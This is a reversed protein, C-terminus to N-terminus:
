RKPAIIFISPRALVLAASLAGLACVFFLDSLFLGWNLVFKVNLLLYSIGRGTYYLSTVVMIAWLVVNPFFMQVLAITLPILVPALPMFHVRLPMYALM